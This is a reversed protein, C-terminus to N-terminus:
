VSLIVAGVGRLLPSAAPPERLRAGVDIAAGAAAVRPTGALASAGSRCEFYHLIAPPIFRTRAAYVYRDGHRPQQHTFLRQPMLLQLKDKLRTMAAYLLRREEEIEAPSGTAM